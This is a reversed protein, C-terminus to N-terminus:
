IRYTAQFSPGSLHLPTIESPRLNYKESFWHKALHLRSDLVLLNELVLFPTGKSHKNQFLKVVRM